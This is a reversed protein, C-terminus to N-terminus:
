HLRANVRQNPRRVCHHDVPRPGSVLPGRGRRPLPDLSSRLGEPMSPTLQNVRTIQLPRPVHSMSTGAKILISFGNVVSVVRGKCVYACVLARLLTSGDTDRETFHEGFSACPCLPVFM